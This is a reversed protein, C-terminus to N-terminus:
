RELNVWLQPAKAIDYDALTRPEDYRTVGVINFAYAIERDEFYKDFDAKAICGRESTANWMEKPSMSLIGDYYFEGIVQCEPSSSYIVVAGKNSNKPTCKRYEVTKKGELIAHAYQPKIPLLIKKM